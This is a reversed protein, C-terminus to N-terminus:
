LTHTIEKPNLTVLDGSPLPRRRLTGTILTNVPTRGIEIGTIIENGFEQLISQVSPSLEKRGHIVKRGIDYVKRVLHIPKKASIAPM